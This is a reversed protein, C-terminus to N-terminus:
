VIYLVPVSAIMSDSYLLNPQLLNAVNHVDNHQLENWVPTCTENDAKSCEPIHMWSWDANWEANMNTMSRGACTEKTNHLAPEAASQQTVNVFDSSARNIRSKMDNQKVIQMISKLTPHVVEAAGNELRQRINTM